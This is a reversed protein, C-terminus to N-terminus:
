EASEAEAAQAVTPATIAVVTGQASMHYPTVGAPLKLESVHVAAGIEMGTLDIVIEAPINAPACTVEVEHLEISVVGGRKVGPSQTENIFQVPVDITITSDPTVRLFDVHLPVDTVPHFQVDRPLVRHAAGDVTVEFLHTFFGPQHLVRTFEFKELSITLPAQKGGYIVAPIRGDRRTQRASRSLM